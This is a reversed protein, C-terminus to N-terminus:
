SVRSHNITFPEILVSTITTVQLLREGKCTECLKWCYSGKDSGHRAPSIEVRQRGLGTCSGCVIIEIKEFTKDM